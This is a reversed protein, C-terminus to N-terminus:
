KKSAAGTRDFTGSIDQGFARWETENREAGMWIFYRANRGLVYRNQRFRNNAAASFASTGSMDIIGTRGAGRDAIRSTITNDHVDLNVLVWPGRNGSGRQDDLGTIGQWNDDLDNGHVEVNRSSIVEIGAGTTWSPWDKATGNRRATNNRITADYSIEHFIGGRENEEVLNDEYLTYINNIDTWLGPGQNHHSFNGRVTLNETFVWKSGGASWYPNYGAYGNYSIENEEVLINKGAGQFGLSGNHHVHNRRATSSQDMAIGTFHNWRVECGEVIWNTGLQVAASETPAAYKEIVLNRITVGTANGGFAVPTDSVEVVKGAPDDWIYIRDLAYDFYWKGSGGADLSAVHHLSVNNVFLDDPYGCRPFGKRCVGDAETGKGMGRHTQGSASWTNGARSFSTVVRAGSLIAGAEGLFTQKHKPVISQLRHVGAKILIGAGEPAANVASQISRGPVVEIIATQSQDGAPASAPATRLGIAAGASRAVSATAPAAAGRTEGHEGPDNVPSAVLMAYMMSVVSVSVIMKCGPGGYGQIRSTQTQNWSTLAPSLRGVLSGVGCRNRNM